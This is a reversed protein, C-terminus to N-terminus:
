RTLAELALRQRRNAERLAGEYDPNALLGLPIPKCLEQLALRLHAIEQKLEALEDPKEVIVIARERYHLRRILGREELGSILRHVGSKSRVGIGDAIEQFTPSYCHEAIYDRIFALTEHQKVTPMM